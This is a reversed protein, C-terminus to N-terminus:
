RDEDDDPKIYVWAVRERPVEKWQHRCRKEGPRPRPVCVLTDVFYKRYMLSSGVIIGARHELEARDWSRVLLLIGATTDPIPNYLRVITATQVSSSDDQQARLPPALFMLLCLLLAMPPPPTAIAVAPVAPVPPPKPEDRQLTIRVTRGAEYASHLVAYLRLYAQSSKGAAISYVRNAHDYGAEDGVILCGSSDAVTNGKHILIYEFGPVNLLHPVFQHGHQQRYKNFFSGARRPALQYTGDPVRTQHKVKAARHGDELIFCFHAGDVYLVSLTSDPTEAIKKVLLDM